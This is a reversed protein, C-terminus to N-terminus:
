DDEKSNMERKTKTGKPLEKEKELEAERATQLLETVLVLNDIDADNPKGGARWRVRGLSDVLFVYVAYSNEVNIGVVKPDL